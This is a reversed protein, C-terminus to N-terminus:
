LGPSRVDAGPALKGEAATNVSYFIHGPVQKLVRGGQLVLWAALLLTLFHCHHLSTRPVIQRPKTSSGIAVSAWGVGAVNQKAKAEQANALPHVQM